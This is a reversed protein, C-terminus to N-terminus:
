EKNKLKALTKDLLACLDCDCEDITGLPPHLDPDRERAKELAERAKTLQSQLSERERLAIMIANRVAMNYLDDPVVGEFNEALMPNINMGSGEREV